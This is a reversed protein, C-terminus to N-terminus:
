PATCNWPAASPTSTWRGSRYRYGYGPTGDGIAPNEAKREGTGSAGQELGLDVRIREHLGPRTRRHRDARVRPPGLGLGHGDRADVRLASWGRPM